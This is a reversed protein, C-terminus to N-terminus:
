SATIDNKEIKLSSKATCTIDSHVHGIIMLVKAQQEKGNSHLYGQVAVLAASGVTIDPTHGAIVSCFLLARLSLRRRVNTAAAIKIAADPTPYINRAIPKGSVFM